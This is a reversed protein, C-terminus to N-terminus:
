RVDEFSLETEPRHPSRPLRDIEEAVRSQDEVIGHARVAAVLDLQAEASARDHDVVVLHPVPVDLVKRLPALAVEVEERDVDLTDAQDPVRAALLV